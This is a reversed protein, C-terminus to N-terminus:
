TGSAGRASQNHADVLQAMLAIFTKQERTSLAAITERHALRAPAEIGRLLRDGAKTLRCDQARGDRRSAARAILGRKHLRKLAGTATTRDLAVDNALTTQDAVARQSLASMLSYQVPTIDFRACRGAFLAVHIQHLRRLLFGPRESLPWPKHRSARRNRTMASEYDPVGYFPVDRLAPVGIARFIDHIRLMSRMQSGDIRPIENSVAEAKNFRDM